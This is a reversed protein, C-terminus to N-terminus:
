RCARRTAAPGNPICGTTASGPSRGRNTPFQPGIMRMSAFIKMGDSHALRTFEALPEVWEDRWLNDETGMDGLSTKFLCYNGRMAEFILLKIDSNAYPEFENKVLGTLDPPVHLYGAHARHIARHLLDLRAKEHGGATAGAEM